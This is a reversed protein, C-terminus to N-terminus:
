GKQLLYKKHALKFNELSSTNRDNPLTQWYNPHQFLFSNAVKHTRSYQRHLNTRQRTNYSHLSTNTYNTYLQIQVM